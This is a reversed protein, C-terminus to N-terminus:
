TGRNERVKVHATTGIGEPRTRIGRKGTDKQAKEDGM